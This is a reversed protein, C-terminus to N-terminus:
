QVSNESEQEEKVEDLYPEVQKGHDRLLRLYARIYRESIIQRDTLTGIDDSISDVSDEISSLRENVSEKVHDRLSNLSSQLTSINSANEKTQKRNERVQEEVKEIRELIEQERSEALLYSALEDHQETYRRIKEESRVRWGKKDEINEHKEIPESEVFGRDELVRLRERVVNESLSSHYFEDVINRTSTWGTKEQLTSLVLESNEDLEEIDARNSM